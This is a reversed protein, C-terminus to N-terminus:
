DSKLVECIMPTIDVVKVWNSFDINLDITNATILNEINAKFLNNITERSILSHTVVAYIKNAGARYVAEAAKALTGGTSIIDDVIAITKNKVDLSKNDISIEGTIRDRYKDLYDYEVNLKRAVDIARHFAGKDPALVMDIKLGTANIMYSHPIIDIHIYGMDKFPKSSHVDVTIIKEVGFLKLSQYLAKISVCEGLLFRKDQRAYAAYPIVVTNGINGLGQLAELTLYLEVIKKDQEPYLSQVVVVKDSTKLEIRIYQEGDPFIKRFPKYVSYGCSYNFSNVMSIPVGSLCVIM